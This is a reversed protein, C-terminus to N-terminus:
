AGRSQSAFISEEVENAMKRLVRCLQAATARNHYFFTIATRDDDDPTFHLDEHSKLFLREGHFVFGNSATRVLHETVETIEENYINIRM